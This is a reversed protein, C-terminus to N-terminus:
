RFKDRFLRKRLFDYVPLRIYKEMQEKTHKRTASDGAYLRESIQYHPEEFYSPEPQINLQLKKFVSDSSYDSWGYQYARILEKELEEGTIEEKKLIQVEPLKERILADCVCGLPEARHAAVITMKKQLIDSIVLYSKKDIQYLALFERNFDLIPSDRSYLRKMKDKENAYEELELKSCDVTYKYFIM